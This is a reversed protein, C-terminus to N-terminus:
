TGQPSADAGFSFEPELVALRQLLPKGFIVLLAVLAAFAAVKVSRGILTLLRGGASTAGPRTGAM